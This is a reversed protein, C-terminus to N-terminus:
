ALLHSNKKLSMATQHVNKQLEFCAMPKKIRTSGVFLGQRCAEDDLAQDSNM